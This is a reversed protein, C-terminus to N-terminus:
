KFFRSHDGITIEVVDERRCISIPKLTDEHKTIEAIPEKIYHEIFKGMVEGAREELHNWADDGIYSLGGCTDFEAALDTLRSSPTPDLVLLIPRFGSNKCYSAFCASYNAMKSIFRM